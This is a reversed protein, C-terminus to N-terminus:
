EAVKLLEEVTWPLQRDATADRVQTVTETKVPDATNGWARRIYTLIASLREDTVIPNVAHGPM